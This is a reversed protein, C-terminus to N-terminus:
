GGAVATAAGADALDDATVIATTVLWEPDWRDGVRGFYVEVAAELEGRVLLAGVHRADGTWLVDPARRGVYEALRQVLEARSGAATAFRVGDASHVIGVHLAGAPAPPSTVVSQTAVTGIARVAASARANLLLARRLATPRIRV